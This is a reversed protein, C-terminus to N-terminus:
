TIAKRVRIVYNVQGIVDDGIQERLAITVDRMGTNKPLKVLLQVPMAEDGKLNIGKLTILKGAGMRMPQLVAHKPIKLRKFIATQAPENIALAALPLPRMEKTAMIPTNLTGGLKEVRVTKRSVNGVLAKLSWLKDKPLVITFEAGQPLDRADIILNRMETRKGLGNMRFEFATEPLEGSDDPTVDDINVNRWAFNNSKAIYAHFESTNDILSPDPAPDEESEIIGIFCYHGEGLTNILTSTLTICEDTATPVWVGESAVAPFDYHGVEHWSAPSPFTSVPSIYLRFTGSAVASGRNFIRFYVKHDDSSLVREQCLSGNNIDSIQALVAADASEQRLIIDPSMCSLIGPEEGQDALRDRVYLDPGIGVAHFASKITALYDLNDPFLSTCALIFALRFDAFDSTNTLVGGSMVEYLMQEVPGVGIGNVAVSSLRHTGGEVMLYLAHSVITSNIHVGHFDSAGTYMISYHDPYFGNRVSAFKTANSTDDYQVVGADDRSPDNLCRGRGTIRYQRGHHWVDPIDAPHDLGVFAGMCDSIAENLAGSEGDYVQVIDFGTSVGHTLEHGVIDLPCMFDHSTGNGDAFFVRERSPSWYANNSYKENHAHGRANAGANDWSNQGHTFYYYNLVYQLFRHIDVEPRQNDVRNVPITDGWVDDSDESYDTLFSSASGADDYIQIEPKTAVAWGSSTATDRLIYDSGSATTNLAAGTSHYGTGSGFHVASHRFLVKGTLADIFYAWDLKHSTDPAVVVVNWCLFYQSNGGPQHLTKGDAVVLKANKDSVSRYGTGANRKAINVAQLAAIKTKLPLALEPIISSKLMMVSGDASYHVALRAGLVSAQGHKQNFVIHTIGYPNISVGANELQNKENIDGLLIKNAEVFIRAEAHPKALLDKIKISPALTGRMVKVVTQDSNLTIMIKPDKKMMKQMTKILKTKDM